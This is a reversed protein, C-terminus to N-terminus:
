GRAARYRWRPAQAGQNHRLRLQARRCRGKMARWASRAQESGDLALRGAVHLGESTERMSTPDVSGIIDEPAGGHSWHLPIQKGSAQWRAITKAFAGPRIAENARDVSWAAAIAEFIGADTITAAKTDVTLHRMTRGGQRIARAAPGGVGCARRPGRLARRVGVGSGPLPYPRGRHLRRHQGDGDTVMLALVAEYGNPSSQAGILTGCSVCVPDGDEDPLTAAHPCANCPRTIAAAAIPQLILEDREAEYRRLARMRHTGNLSRADSRLHDLSAGCGCECTRHPGPDPDPDDSSSSSAREGRRSGRRHQNTAARPARGQSRTRAAAPTTTTRALHEELSAPRDGILAGYQHLAERRAAIAAPVNRNGTREYYAAALKKTQQSGM